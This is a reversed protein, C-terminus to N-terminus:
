SGALGLILQQATLHYHGRYSVVITTVAYHVLGCKALINKELFAKMTSRSEVSFFAINLLISHSNRPDTFSQEKFKLWLSFFFDLWLILLPGLDM